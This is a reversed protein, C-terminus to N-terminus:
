IKKMEDEIVFHVHGSIVHFVNYNESLILDIAKKTSETPKIGHEGIASVRNRIEIAKEAIYETALPVHLM